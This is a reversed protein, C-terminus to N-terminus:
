VLRRERLLRDRELLVGLVMGATISYRVTIEPTCGPQEACAYVVDRVLQRVVPSQVQMEAGLTRTLEAREDYLGQLFSSIVNSVDFRASM